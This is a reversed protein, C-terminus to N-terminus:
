VARFPLKVVHCAHETAGTASSRTSVLACHADQGDSMHVCVSEVGEGVVGPSYMDCKLHGVPLTAVNRTRKFTAACLAAHRLTDASSMNVPKWM